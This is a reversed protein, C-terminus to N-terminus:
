TMLSAEQLQSQLKALGQGGVKLVTGRAHELLEPFTSGAFGQLWPRGGPAGLAVEALAALSQEVESQAAKMLDDRCQSLFADAANQFNEALKLVEYKVSVDFDSMGTLDKQVRNLKRQLSLTKQLMMSHNENAGNMQQLDTYAQGVCFSDMVVQSTLKLEALQTYGALFNACQGVQEYKAPIPKESEWGSAILQWMTGALRTMMEVQKPEILSENITTASLKAHLANVAELYLDPKDTAMADVEGISQMSECVAKRQCSNQVWIGATCVFGQLEVDQPYTMCADTMLKAVQQAEDPDMDVKEKCFTMMHDLAKRFEWLLESCTGEKLSAMLSPLDNCINILGPVTKMELQMLSLFELHKRVLPGKELVAPARMLFDEMLHAYLPSREISGAVLTLCTKSPRGMAAKLKKVDAQPLLVGKQLWPGLVGLHGGM